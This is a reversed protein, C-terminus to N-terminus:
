SCPAVVIWHCRPWSGRNFPRTGDFAVTCRMKTRRPSTNGCGSFRGFDDHRRKSAGAGFSHHCISAISQTIAVEVLTTFIKLTTSSWERTAHRERAAISAV